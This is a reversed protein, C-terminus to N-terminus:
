TENRCGLAKNFLSETMLKKLFSKKSCSNQLACAPLRKNNQQIVIILNQGNANMDSKTPKNYVM